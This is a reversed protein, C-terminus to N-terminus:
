MTQGAPQAPYYGPQAVVPQGPYGPQAPYGPQPPYAAPYGPQPPYGQQAPYPPPVFGPQPGGPYPASPQDYAGYNPPPYGAM